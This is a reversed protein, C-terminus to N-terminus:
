SFGGPSSKGCSSALQAEIGTCAFVSLLKNTDSSGCEPCAPAQDDSGFILREFEKGCGCCKFEFIPM